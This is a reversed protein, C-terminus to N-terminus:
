YYVHFVDASIAGGGVATAKVISHPYEIGALLYETIATSPADAYYTVYSASTSVKFSRCADFSTQNTINLASTAPTNSKDTDIITTPTKITAM